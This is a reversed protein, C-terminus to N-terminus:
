KITAPQSEILKQPDIVYREENNYAASVIDTVSDIFENYTDGDLNGGMKIFNSTAEGSIGVLDLEYVVSCYGFTVSASIQQPTNLKAQKSKTTIKMMMRAGIGYRTTENKCFHKGTQLYEVLVVKEKKGINVHGFGFLGLGIQNDRNFNHTRLRLGETLDNISSPRTAQCDSNSNPKHPNNPDIRFYNPDNAESSADGLTEHDQVTEGCGM